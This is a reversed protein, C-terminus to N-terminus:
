PEYPVWLVEKELSIGEEELVKKQIERVLTRIDEAKAEGRNVIFNAHKESVKAGNLEFGKLSCKEILAGASLKGVPNRFMCGASKETLPQTQKRYEILKAQIKQSEVGGKQLSFKASLIAGKKEHFSSYRYSYQLDSKPFTQIEGSEHLFTVSSLHDFTEAKTAGANMYIAGGVTAPISAAFELGSLGKKVTKIGLLSFSYGSGVEVENEQFKLFQIKNQLVVGNFGRDDFLCNSGKGLIFIPLNQTQAFLFAERMEDPTHISAFFRAPGGM